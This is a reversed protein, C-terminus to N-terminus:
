SFLAKVEQKTLIILSFIGLITGYPVLLCSIGAAVLCFNYHTRRRLYGGAFCLLTAFILGALILCSAICIFVGGVITLPFLVKLNFLSVSVLVTGVTLHIMPILALLAAFAAVVYHFVGLLNLNDVNRDM